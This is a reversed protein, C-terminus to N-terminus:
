RFLEFLGHFYSCAVHLSDISARIPKDHRV